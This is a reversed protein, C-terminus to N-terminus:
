GCCAMGKKKKKKKKKRKKTPPPPMRVQFSLPPPLPESHPGGVGGVGRTVGVTPPLLGLIAEGRHREKIGQDQGESIDQLPIDGWPIMVFIGITAIVYGLM